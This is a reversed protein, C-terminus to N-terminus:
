RTRGRGREALAGDTTTYTVNTGSGSATSIQSGDLSIHLNRNASNNTSSIQVVEPAVTDDDTVTFVLVNSNVVLTRDDTRDEDNDAASVRVTHAGLV